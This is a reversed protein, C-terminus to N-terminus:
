AGEGPCTRIGLLGYMPCRGLLGTALPVIGVWGWPTQPGYFVLSILGIGIVVRLARDWTAMNRDWLKALM